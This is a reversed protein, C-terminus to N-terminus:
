RDPKNFSRILQWLSLCLSLLPLLILFLPFKWGTWKDLKLGLWVAALLMAMWQSALGAYKLAPNPKRRSDTDNGAENGKM